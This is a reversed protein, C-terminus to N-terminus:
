DAGHGALRFLQLLEQGTSSTRTVDLASVPADMVDAFGAMDAGTQGSLDRFGMSWDAFTRQDNWASWLTAVDTHRPDAEIRDVIARVTEEEGELLQMFREDRYLLMGTIGTEANHRRCQDLLIRLEDSSMPHTATSTYVLAFTVM